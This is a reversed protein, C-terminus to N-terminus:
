FGELLGCPGTHVMDGYTIHDVAVERVEDGELRKRTRGAETMSTVSAAERFVGPM